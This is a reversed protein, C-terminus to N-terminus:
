RVSLLIKTLMCNPNQTLSAVSCAIVSSISAIKFANELVLSISFKHHWLYFGLNRQSNDKLFFVYILRCVFSKEALCLIHKESAWKQTIKNNRSYIFSWKIAQLMIVGIIIASSVLRKLWFLCIFVTNLLIFVSNFSIM